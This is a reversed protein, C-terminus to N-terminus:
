ARSVPARPRERGIPNQPLFLHAFWGMSINSATSYGRGIRYRGLLPRILEGPADPSWYMQPRLCYTMSETLREDAAAEIRVRRKAREGAAM